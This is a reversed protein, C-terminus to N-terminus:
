GKGGIKDSNVYIIKDEKKTVIVEEGEKFKHPYAVKFTGIQRYGTFLSFIWAPDHRNSICLTDGSEKFINKGFLITPRGTMIQEVRGLYEGNEDIEFLKPEKFM